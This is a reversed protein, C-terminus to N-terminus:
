GGFVPLGGAGLSGFQDINIDAISGPWTNTNFPQDVDSAGQYFLRWQGNLQAVFPTAVHYRDFTGAVGSKTFLPNHAWSTYPGTVSTARAVSIRFSNTFNGSEYVLAYDSAGFKILQHFEVNLPDDNVLDGAGGKTWALGDSSTAYRLSTISPSANVDFRMYIMTWSSGEKIVAAEEVHTGDNRGQGAPTLIPNGAYRTFTLGDTSTALGVQTVGGANRGSYYMRYTGSDYFISGLRVFIGDWGSGAGLVVGDDTWTHLNSSLPAHFRGIILNTSNAPAYMGSAYCLVRTADAPDVFVQFDYLQEESWSGAAGLPFYATRPRAVRLYAEDFLSM